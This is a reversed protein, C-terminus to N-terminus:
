GPIFFCTAATILRTLFILSSSVDWGITMFATSIIAALNFSYYTAGRKEGIIM